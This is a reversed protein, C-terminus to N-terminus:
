LLVPRERFENVLLINYCIKQKFCKLVLPSLYSFWWGSGSGPTVLWSGSFYLRTSDVWYLILRIFVFVLLYSPSLCPQLHRAAVKSVESISHLFSCSESPHEPVQIQVCPALLLTLVGVWYTVIIFLPQTCHRANLIMYM